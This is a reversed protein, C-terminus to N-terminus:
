STRHATAFRELAEKKQALHTDVQGPQARNRGVLAAIEASGRIVETDGSELAAVVADALAEPPEYEFGEDPGLESGDEIPTALAGPYVTVVQIGEGALERRLAESFGAFGAKSAAYAAYFPLGVLGMLSSINVIAAEGSKKLAPLAARTYYIPSILNADLQARLQEIEMAEFRGGQVVNVNNVLIDLTGFREVVMRIVRDRWSDPVDSPILQVEPVDDPRVERSVDEVLQATDRLRQEYRDSLTLRVGKRAFAAALARGIGNGAGTIFASKGAIDM